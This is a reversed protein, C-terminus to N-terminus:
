RVYNAAQLEGGRIAPPDWEKMQASIYFGFSHHTTWHERLHSKFARVIAESTGHHSVWEEKFNLHAEPVAISEENWPGPTKKPLHYLGQIKVLFNTPKDNPCCPCFLMTQKGEQKEPIRQHVKRSRERIFGENHTRKKNNLERYPHVPQPGFFDLVADQLAGLKNVAVYARMKTDIKEKAFDELFSKAKDKVEEKHIKRDVKNIAKLWLPDNPDRYLVLFPTLFLPSYM